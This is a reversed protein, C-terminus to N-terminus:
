SIKIDNMMSAVINKPDDSLREMGKFEENTLDNDTTLNLRTAIGMAMLEQLLLKFAYPM